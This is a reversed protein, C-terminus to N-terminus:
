RNDGIATLEAEVSAILKLSAEPSLAKDTRLTDFTDAYRTVDPKNHLFQDNGANEIYVFDAHEAGHPSLIAFNGPMGGHVGVSFPIVQLTVHPLDTLEQLRRMQEAMVVPGGVCRRLAAEDVVVDLHLPDPKTLLAQRQLRVTVHDEIDTPTADPLLGTIIARAYPETQCQGPVFLSEYKRLRRAAREYRVYVQYPEPLNPYEPTSSGPGAGDWLTMIYKRKAAPAKLAKLVALTNSKSPRSMENPDLMRRITNESVGSDKVISSLKRDGRLEAMELALQHRLVAPQGTTM